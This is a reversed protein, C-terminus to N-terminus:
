HPFRELKAYIDNYQKAIVEWNHKERIIAKARCARVVAKPYHSLVYNLEEALSNANSVEFAYGLGNAVAENEPINSYVTPVGSSLGELLAMSMAEYESPFVFIGAYAYLSFFEDGTLFGVFKVGDPKNKKLEDFYDFDSGSGGGAIVLPLDSGIKAYAALLTDLGKTREIRGASCFFFKQAEIDWKKLFAKDPKERLKIGNPIYVVDKGYKNKYDDVLPKSVSTIIDPLHIFFQEAMKSMAIAPLGWKKRRYAKGYSTAVIGFRTKPLWALLCPDTSHVHVVDFCERRTALSANWMHSIMEFNKHSSGKVTKIKAGFYDDTFKTYSEYGYVTVDHSMSALYPLLSDVVVEVGHHGPIGKTGLIAIKM